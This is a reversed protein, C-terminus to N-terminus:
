EHCKPRIFDCANLTADRTLLVVSRERSRGTSLNAALRRYLRISRFRVDRLSNLGSVSRGEWVHQRVRQGQTFLTAPVPFKVDAAITQM